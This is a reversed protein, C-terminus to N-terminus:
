QGEGYSGLAAALRGKIKEALHDPSVVTVGDAFSLLLQELEYNIIVKIKVTSSGDENVRIRQSQHLPKTKIYPTHRPTVKLVIEQPSDSKGRTVGVMDSFYEDNFDYKENPIFETDAKREIGTIRDLAYISLRRYGETLGFLFWRNNYAKLYYPHVTLIDPRNKKFNTYSLEIVEKSTIARLLRSFHERGSLDKNEDLGVVCSIDSDIKLKLKTKEIFSQIWESQPLGDFKSLMIICQSLQNAAEETLTERYISFDESYGYIDKHGVRKKVLPAKFFDKLYDLDNDITNRTVQEKDFFQSNVADLLEYISFYGTNLYRDLIRYRIESKKTHPM